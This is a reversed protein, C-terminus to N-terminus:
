SMVTTDRIWNAYRSKRSQYKELEKVVNRALKFTQSNGMDRKDAYGPEYNVIRQQCRIWHFTEILQCDFTSKLMM